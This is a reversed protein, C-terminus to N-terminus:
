ELSHLSGTFVQLWCLLTVTLDFLKCMKPKWWVWWLQDLLSSWCNRLKARNLPLGEEKPENCSNSSKRLKAHLIWWFGHKQLFYSQGVTLESVMNIKEYCYQVFYLSVLSEISLNCMFIICHYQLLLNCNQIILLPTCLVICHWASHMFELVIWISLSIM